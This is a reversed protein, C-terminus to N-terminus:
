FKIDAGILLRRGEIPLRPVAYVPSAAVTGRAASSTAGVEHV